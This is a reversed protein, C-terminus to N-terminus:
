PAPTISGIIPVVNSYMDPDPGIKNGVLTLEHLTGLVTVKPATYEM